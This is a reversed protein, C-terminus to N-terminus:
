NAPYAHKFDLAQDGTSRYVVRVGSEPNESGFSLPNKGCGVLDDIEIEIYPYVQGAAIQGGELAPFSRDDATAKTSLSCETSSRM